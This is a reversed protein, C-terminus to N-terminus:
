EEEDEVPAGVTATAVESVFSRPMVAPTVIAGVAGVPTVIAGTESVVAGVDPTSPTPLLSVLLAAVSPASVTTGEEPTIKVPVRPNSMTLAMNM